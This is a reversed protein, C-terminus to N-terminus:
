VLWHKLGDYYKCYRLLANNRLSEESIYFFVSYSSGVNPGLRVGSTELYFDNFLKETLDQLLDKVSFQALHLAYNEVRLNNDFKGCCLFRM